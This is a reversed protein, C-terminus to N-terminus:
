CESWIEAQNSDIGSLFRTQLTYVQSFTVKSFFAIKTFFALKPIKQRIIVKKSNPFTKLQM